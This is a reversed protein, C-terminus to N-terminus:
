IQQQLSSNKRLEPIKAVPKGPVTGDLAPSPHPSRLGPEAVHFGGRDPFGRTKRLARAAVAGSGGSRLCHHIRRAARDGSVQILVCIDVGRGLDGAMHGDQEPFSM